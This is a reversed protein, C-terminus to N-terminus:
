KCSIDGHRSGVLARDLALVDEDGATALIETAQQGAIEGGMARGLDGDVVIRGGRAGLRFRRGIGHALGTGARM